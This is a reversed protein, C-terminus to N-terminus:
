LWRLQQQFRFKNEKVSLQQQAFPPTYVKEQLLLVWTGQPPVLLAGDECRLRKSPGPTMTVKKCVSDTPSSTGVRLSMM